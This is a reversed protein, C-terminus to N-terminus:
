DTTTGSGDTTRLIAHRLVSCRDRGAPPLVCLVEDTSIGRRPERSTCISALRDIAGPQDLSTLRPRYYPPRGRAAPRSLPDTVHTLSLERCVRWIEDHTWSSDAPDWGFHLGTRHAWQFFATMAGVHDDTAGFGRPTSFVIWAADLARAAELTARWARRIVATDRFGGVEFRDRRVRGRQKATVTPPHTIARPARLALVTAAGAAGRWARATAADPLDGTRDTAVELLDLGPPPDAGPRTVCGIRVNTVPAMTGADPFARGAPSHFDTASGSSGGRTPRRIM